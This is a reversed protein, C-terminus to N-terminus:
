LSAKARGSQPPEDVCGQQFARRIAEEAEKAMDEVTTGRGTGPFFKVNQLERGGENLFSHLSDMRNATM